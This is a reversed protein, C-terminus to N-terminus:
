RPKIANEVMAKLTFLTIALFVLLFGLLLASSSVIALNINFFRVTFYSNILYLSLGLGIVVLVAGPLGIYKLPRRVAITTLISAIVSTGHKVPHYTSTEGEYYISVPVEVFRLGQEAAKILIESDIGMGDVNLDIQRIAKSSYARFGSQTDSIDQKAAMGTFKNLAKIGVKRYSPVESSSLFRSGISIDAEGGIIPSVLKPIEDPNHQGDADITVIVSAGEKLAANFLTKLAAGKGQNREHKIVTAGLNQSIEATMDESGDDCVIIKDVHKKTQIIVKAIVTEENYAPICAIVTSRSM